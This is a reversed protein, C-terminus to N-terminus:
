RSIAAVSLATMSVTIAIGSLLAPMWATLSPRSIVLLLLGVSFVLGGLLTAIMVGTIQSKIVTWSDSSGVLKLTTIFTGLFTAAGIGTFILSTWQLAKGQAPATPATAASASM